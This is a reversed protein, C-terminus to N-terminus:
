LIMLPIEDVDELTSNKRGKEGRAKTCYGANEDKIYSVEEELDLRPFIPNGKKM